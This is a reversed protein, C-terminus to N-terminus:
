GVTEACSRCGRKSQTKGRASRKQIRGLLEAEKGEAFQLDDGAVRALRQKLRGKTINWNGKILLTNM